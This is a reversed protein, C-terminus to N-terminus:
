WLFPPCLHYVSVSDSGSVLRHFRFVGVESTDTLSCLGCADSRRCNKGRMSVVAAFYKQGEAINHAHQERSKVFGKLDNCEDSKVPALIVSTLARNSICAPGRVNM